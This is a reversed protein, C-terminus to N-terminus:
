RTRSAQLARDSAQTATPANPRRMTRIELDELSAGTIGECQQPRDVTIRFLMGVVGDTGDLYGWGDCLVAPSRTPMEFRMTAMPDNFAFDSDTVRVTGAYTQGDCPAQWASPGGQSTLNLRALWNDEVQISTWQVADNSGLANAFMDPGEFRMQLWNVGVNCLERVVREYEQGVVQDLLRGTTPGVQANVYQRTLRRVADAGARCILENRGVTNGDWPEGDPRRPTALVDWLQVRVNAGAPCARAIAVAPDIPQDVRGADPPPDPVNSDQQVSADQAPVATADEGCASCSLLVLGM